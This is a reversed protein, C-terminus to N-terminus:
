PVAQSSELAVAGTKQPLYSIVWMKAARLQRKATAQSVETIRAIEGSSLGGFYWMELARSKDPDLRALHLLAQDVALLTDLDIRRGAQSEELVETVVAGGRKERGRSRALDVLVQRMVHAAFGFFQTRSELLPTRHRHLRLYVEHLLVTPQLTVQRQEARFGNVALAKLDRYTDQFLENLADPDGDHWRRLRGTIDFSETM